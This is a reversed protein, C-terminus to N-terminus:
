KAKSYHKHFWRRFEPSTIIDTLRHIIIIIEPTSYLDENDVFFLYTNVTNAAGAAIDDIMEQYGHIFLSTSKQQHYKENQKVMKDLNSDLGARQMQQYNNDNYPPPLFCCFNLEKDLYASDEDLPNTKYVM